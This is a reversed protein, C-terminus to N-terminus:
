DELAKADVCTVKSISSKSANSSVKRRENFVKNQKM